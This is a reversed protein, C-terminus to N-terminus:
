QAELISVTMENVSFIQLMLKSSGFDEIGKSFLFAPQKPSPLLATEKNFM